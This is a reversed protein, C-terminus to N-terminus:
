FGFPNDTNNDEFPNDQKGNDNNIYKNPYFSDYITPNPANMQQSMEVDDDFYLADFEPSGIDDDFM